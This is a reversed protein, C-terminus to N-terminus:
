ACRMQKNGENRWAKLDTANPHDSIAMEEFLLQMDPDDAFDDVSDNTAPKDYAELVKKVMELDPAFVLQVLQELLKRDTLM